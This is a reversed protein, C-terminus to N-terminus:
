KPVTKPLAVQWEFSVTVEDGTRFLGLKVPPKVKFDTMKLPVKGVIKLRGQDLNEISVPMSIVNTVGNFSLEGKTDFQFPTASAHPEKASMELVRFQIKPFEKANMADQMPEDMGSWSGKMSSVPIATEVRAELRGNQLGTLAASEDFKVSAPVELFGGIIQGEMTWDHVNATGAITVKSGLPRAKYRVMEEARANIVLAAAVGVLLITKVRGACNKNRKKEILM